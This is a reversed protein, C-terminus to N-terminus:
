TSFLMQIMKNPNIRKWAILVELIGYMMASDNTKISDFALM